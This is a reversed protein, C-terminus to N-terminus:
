GLHRTTHETVSTPPYPNQATLPPQPSSPPVALPLASNAAKLEAAKLDGKALYYQGLGRGLSSIGGILLGFCIWVSVGMPLIAFIFAAAVLLALGPAGKYIASAVERRYQAQAQSLSDDHLASLATTSGSLAASVVGLNTGCTTCFKRETSQQAGCTPCFM